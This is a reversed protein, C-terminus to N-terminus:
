SESEVAAGWKQNWEDMIQDITKGKTAAQVVIDQIKKGNGNNIGLESDSNIDAFLDEEGELAPDDVILDVDSFHEYIEPMKDDGQVIPIGGENQAYGSKETMWKVFIMAAEQRSADSNKNIGMSYNGSLTAYQKGDVTIPFPMYQVDDPHDGAQKMQTVAWAGLVMSGIEGNNIKGKSSEWDTTSYDEETLGNAVAQYLTNYVAYPYTQPDKDNKAFPAKDHPMVQNIFKPNGTAIGGIYFDWAGMAWEEAFNTYLPIADTKEKILKLDAIYEDPTKPLETIGADKFVKANYVVGSTQGDTAIGYTQGDYAKEKSLKVEKGVEDTAGYSVFYNGLESLDVAPIMMIDWSDNNAQLRTLASDAYNSDTQVNVKIDPYMENFEKLYAEWNKGPYTALGMDTRANLFTIEAKVDKGTEGLKIEPYTVGAKNNAAESGSGSGGGCAAMSVMTAVAVGAAAIKKLNM